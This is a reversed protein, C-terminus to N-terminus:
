RNELAALRNGIEDRLGTAPFKDLIAKYMKEAGPADGKKELLRAQHYQARDKYLDGEMELKRFEDLALDLQGKGEFAYGRGERALFRLRHDTDTRALFDGYAKIAEDYKEGDLLVGARVMEVDRTTGSDKFRALTEDLAALTAKRREEATKFRPIEDEETAKRGAEEDTLLEASYIKMARSLARSAESETREHRSSWAMTSGIALGAIVLGIVIPRGSGRLVEYVHQWFTLFEDPRKLEKRTYRKAV